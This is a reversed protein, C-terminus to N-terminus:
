RSYLSFARPAPLAMVVSLSSQSRGREPTWVQHHTPLLLISPLRCRAWKPGWGLFCQCRCGGSTGAKQPGPWRGSVNAEMPCVAAMGDAACSAARPGTGEALPGQWGRVPQRHLRQSGGLQRSCTGPPEPSSTSHVCRPATFSHLQPPTPHALRYGRLLSQVPRPVSPFQLSNSCSSALM